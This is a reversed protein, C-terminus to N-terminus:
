PITKFFNQAFCNKKSIMIDGKSIDYLSDYYLEGKISNM